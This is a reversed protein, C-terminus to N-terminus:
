LTEIAQEQFEARELKFARAEGMPTVILCLSGNPHGVIDRRSPLLESDCHSHYYGKVVRGRRRGLYHQQLLWEDRMEFRKTYLPGPYPTFDLIPGEGIAWLLGCCELPYAETAQQTLEELLSGEIRM